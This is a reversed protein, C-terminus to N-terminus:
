GRDKIAKLADHLARHDAKKQDKVLSKAVKANTLDIPYLDTINVYPTPADACASEISADAVELVAVVNGDADIKAVHNFLRSDHKDPLGM